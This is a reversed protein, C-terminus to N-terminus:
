GVRGSEVARLAELGRASPVFSKRVDIMGLSYLRSVAVSQHNGLPSLGGGEVIRRLLAIEPPNLEPPM